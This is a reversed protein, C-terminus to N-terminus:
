KRAVQLTHLGLVPIHAIPGIAVAAMSGAACTVLEASLRPLWGPLYHLISARHGCRAKKSKYGRVRSGRSIAAIALGRMKRSAALMRANLLSCRRCPLVMPKTGVM